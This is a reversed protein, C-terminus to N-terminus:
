GNAVTNTNINNCFISNYVEGIKANATAAYWFPIIIILVTIVGILFALLATM